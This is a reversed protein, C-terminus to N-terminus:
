SLESSLVIGCLTEQQLVIENLPPQNICLSATLYSNHSRYLSNLRQLVDTDSFGTTIIIVSEGANQEAFRAGVRESHKM